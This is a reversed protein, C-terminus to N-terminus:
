FQFSLVFHELCLESALVLLAPIGTRQERSCNFLVLVQLATTSQLFHAETLGLRSSNIGKAEAWAPSGWHRLVLSVTQLAPAVPSAPKIGPDPLDGLPSCPFQSRYEQRSFGMFLPAQLAVTWLAFLGTFTPQTSLIGKRQPELSHIGSLTWGTVDGDPM